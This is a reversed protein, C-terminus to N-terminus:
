LIVFFIGFEGRKRMGYTHGRGRLGRRRLDAAAVLRRRLWGGDSIAYQTCSWALSAFGFRLKSVPVALATLRPPDSTAVWECTPSIDGKFCVIRWKKRYGFNKKPPASKKNEEMGGLECGWFGMDAIADIADIPDIADIWELFLLM